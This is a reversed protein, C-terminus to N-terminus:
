NTVLRLNKPSESMANTTYEYVGITPTALSRQLGAFDTKVEELYIGNKIAPSTALLHFDANATNVFNPNATLNNSLTTNAGENFLNTPNNYIINNMAKTNINGTQIDIGRGTNGYVTNNYVKNRANNGINNINIGHLNNWVINNYILNDDSRNLTIAGSGHNYIQNNRYVNNKMRIGDDFRYQHIGWGANDHIQCNEILNDSTEIYFGHRHAAKHTATYYSTDLGNHHVHMNIFQHSTNGPNTDNHYSTNIGSTGAANKVEGNTFRLHHTGGNLSIGSDFSTADITIGDFIVYQTLPTKKGIAMKGKITVKEGAFAAVTVPNAWSTGSPYNTGNHSELVESYTGGRILLRDGAVLRGLSFKITRFPGAQSGANGDNGNTSVYYTAAYSLTPLVFTALLILCPFVTCQTKLRDKLKMVLTREYLMKDYVMIQFLRTESSVGM